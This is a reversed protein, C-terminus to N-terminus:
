YQFGVGAGASVDGVTNATGTLKIIVKGNDSARSWGVAVASQDKYAGVAASVMSKGSTYVQPLSMGAAANAGIGRMEKRTSSVKAEVNSVRNNINRVSNDIKTVRQDVAHLQSGNVADKSTASITGNAVNTIKKSGADIGSKTVSPGNKITVGNTTVKTDGVNVEKANVTESNVVKATVSNVKIDKNLGVKYEKSGLTNPQNTVNINNDGAVVTEEKNQGSASSGPDGKDGKAGKEGPLGRDGKDGKTGKEGPLGQEGKDGKAGKEGPLGQDGKDGKAGKEGPLGQDGKDGKAGKEGPLGQDGKDGKTGKEGPLGQEGKDGKAGKEGPLGQDGKDGKPGKFNPDNKLTEKDLGVFVTKTGDGNDKEAAYLGNGFDFSLKSLDYKATPLQTGATYTNVTVGNVTATGKSYISLAPSLQSLQSMAAYLQSGNIADTSTNSILGAAVNQIRREKGEDGVSFVGVPTAGAFTLVKSIGDINVTETGYTDMGKTVTSAALTKAGSGIAVSKAIDATANHGIAIIDEVKTELESDSSGIIVNNSVGTVKHKDGIVINKTSDTVTNSTGIITTNDVNNAKINFGTILNETSTNSSTGTLTNNVGILSSRLTYDATNGGGFAMTSGESNADIIAQRLQESMEDVSNVASPSFGINSISNTIKNGAGYILAANSNEAVNALGVISNAVGSSGEYGKSRISNLSGVSVAGFNQSGYLLSNFGGSGNFGGTMISYAGFMSSLAGKNYTNTGVTTMGVINAEGNTNNDVTIGGMTGQYTHSGIQVSSTRAYSNTGIAIGGAIRSTDTPTYTKNFFGGGVTWNGTDFSLQYEQQGSGNLVYANKGIAISTLSHGNSAVKAADGMAISSQGDSSATNGVAISGKGTAKATNGVSLANTQTASAKPGIAMAGEQTAGDNKYNAVDTSSNVSFYKIPAYLGMLSYLQSGNIADTSDKSILGAAVNQIRRESGVNGVSVVGSANGGAFNVTKKVGNITFEQSQYADAGKTTNSASLTTSKAGLAVSNKINALANTGVAVNETKPASSGTGVAIGLGDGPPNTATAAEAVGVSLITVAMIGAIHGTVKGARKALESCVHYAQSVPNLKIKFIKNM